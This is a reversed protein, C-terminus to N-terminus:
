WKTVKAQAMFPTWGLKAACGDADFFLQCLDMYGQKSGVASCGRISVFHLSFCLFSEKYILLKAIKFLLNGKYM